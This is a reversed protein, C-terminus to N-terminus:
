TKSQDKTWDNLNHHWPEDPKILREVASRGYRYFVAPTIFIDLLTSTALGGIIVISLPYLIEKGPEGESLALPLLALIATLSTMCVPVLRELTGRIVTERNFPQGEERILHIYHSIMMVGNRSAIGCLTIFAVIAPISISNGTAWLALISGILALPINILVQASLLLSRFKFWLIVLVILLAVIGLTITREMSRQQAEYRGEYSITYGPPLEIEAAIAARIDAMVSHIDRGSTNAQVIIRRAGGERNVRNPGTSTYAEAVDGFRVAGIIPDFRIITDSLGEPNNRLSEDVQVFIDRPKYGEYITGVVAGAMLWELDQSLEGAYIGKTSAKAIDIDIKIQPIEVIPEGQIDVLGKIDGMADQIDGSLLHLTGLDPGFIKLAIESRVGSLLHDLRHSIPQGANVYVDAVEAINKRIDDLVQDRPRNMAHFNVDIEHWHAGEAHEDEEARGTRRITSKAEPVKLIAQEIKVGLADSAKLSIGPFSAIGLTATTENFKPLFDLGLRPVVLLAVAVFLAAVTAMTARPFSMAREVLPRTIAKLSGVLGSEKAPLLGDKGLLLYCLVPTITTAVLLSATISLIYAVGLPFFLRGEIGELALLPVFVLVVILTSIVISSRIELSAHLVVKLPSQRENEPLNFNERLRRFVNEVDVIADDVLEGIAIALGGLTMTNISLGLASFTVLTLLFSLPIALLTITTAKINLLFLFIIIAVIITGDRLAELVNSIANDIFTAQKFLDSKIGITSPLSPGIEELAKDIRETLELTNAGPEKQITMIVSPSGNVSAVGRKTKASSVVEAIDRVRIAQSGIIGVLLNEIDSISTLASRPRILYEKDGIDTYGGTGDVGMHSFAHKLNEPTVRANIMKNFDVRILFQKLDGGMVIVNSVGPLSRLKPKLTYRALDRLQSPTATQGKKAFLGVYQIEGMISTPKGLVPQFGTPLRGKVAEAASAVRQRAAALDAGWDFEVWIMSLGAKSTSRVAIADELGTFASELPATVRKEVEEPALGHSETLVVVRPRNLDPLVDIPLHLASYVGAAIIALAAFLVAFRHKLSKQIIFDFM